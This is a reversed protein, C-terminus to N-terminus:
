LFVVVRFREPIKDLGLSSASVVEDRHFYISRNQCVVGTNSFAHVRIKGRHKGGFIIYIKGCLITSKLLLKRVNITRNILEFSVKLFELGVLGRPRVM